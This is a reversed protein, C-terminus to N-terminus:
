RVVRKEIYESTSAHLAAPYDCVFGVVDGIHYDTASDTIDVILHDSSAAVIDMGDDVPTLGDISTDQKGLALIARRRIGKDDFTPYNGFADRSLKGIPKSPKTKIEIIEAELIFNDAHLAPHTREDSVYNSFLILEGIRLNNFATPPKDEEFLYFSSSSGGSTIEPEFGCEKRLLAKIEDLKEYTEATPVVGGTCSLNSGIGKLNIHVLKQIEQVDYVLEDLDFYGERLDGLDVMLLIDHTKGLLAATEDLARVTSLESNLSLTTYNITDVLEDRQPSRILWKECDLDAIKKINHMRSDGIARVGGALMAKAVEPHGGSCKVVGTLGVGKDGVLAVIKKTNEMIQKTNIKLLPYM